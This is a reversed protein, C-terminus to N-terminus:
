PRPTLRVLGLLETGAPVPVFARVVERLTEIGASPASERFLEPDVAFVPLGRGVHAVVRRRTEGLPDSRVEPALLGEPDRDVLALNDRTPDHVEWLYFQTARCSGHPGCTCRSRASVACM